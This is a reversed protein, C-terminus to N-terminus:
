RSRPREAPASSAGLELSRRARMGRWLEEVFPLGIALVAAIGLAALYRPSLAATQKWHLSWDAPESGLGVLALAQAPHLLAVGALGVWPLVLQLSHVWQEPVPIHRQRDAFRLDIWVTIEHAICAALAIALVAADVELLLVAGLGLGIELVMLLHLVSEYPGATLEIRALRHCLWDGLGALLWLPMLGYLLAARLLAATPDPSDM